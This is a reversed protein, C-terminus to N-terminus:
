YTAAKYTRSTRKVLMQQEFNTQNSHIISSANKKATVQTTNYGKENYRLLDRTANSAISNNKLDLAERGSVGASSKVKLWPLM